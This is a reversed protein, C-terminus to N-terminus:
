AGDGSLRESTPQGDNFDLWGVFHGEYYFEEFLLGDVGDGGPDAVALARFTSLNLKPELITDTINGTHDTLYVARTYGTFESEAPVSITVLASHPAPFNADVWVMHKTPEFQDIVRTREEPELGSLFGKRLREVAKAPAPNGAVPHLKSADDFTGAPAALTWEIGDPLADTPETFLYYHMSSPGSSRSTSSFKLRRPGKPTLVDVEALDHFREPFDQRRYVMPKRTRQGEFTEALQERETDSQPRIEITFRAEHPRASWYTKATAAPTASKASSSADSEEGTSSTDQNIQDQNIQDQNIQDQQVDQETFATKGTSRDCGITLLVLGCLISWRIWPHCFTSATM